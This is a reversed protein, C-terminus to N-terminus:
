EDLKLDDEPKGGFGGGLGAKDNSSAAAAAALKFMLKEGESSGGANPTVGSLPRNGKFNTNEFIITQVANERSEATFAEDMNSTLVGPQVHGGGGVALNAQDLRLASPNETLGDQDNRFRQMLLARNTDFEAM